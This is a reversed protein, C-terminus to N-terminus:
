TVLISQFGGGWCKCPDYVIPHIYSQVTSVGIVVYKSAPDYLIHFNAPHLHWTIYLWTFIIYVRKTSVNFKRVLSGVLCYQTDCKNHGIKM